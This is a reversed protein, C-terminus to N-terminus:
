VHCLVSRSVEHAESTLGSTVGLYCVCADHRRLFCFASRLVEHAESTLGSPVGSYCVPMAAYANKRKAVARYAQSRWSKLQCTRFLFVVPRIAPDRQNGRSLVCLCWPTLFVFHPDRSKM